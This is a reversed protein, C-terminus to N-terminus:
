RGLPMWKGVFSLGDDSGERLLAHDKPTSSCFANCHQVDRNNLRITSYARIRCSYDIKKRRLWQFWQHGTFERDATLCLIHETPLCAQYTSNARQYFFQRAKALIDM